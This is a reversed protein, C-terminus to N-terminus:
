PIPAPCQANPNPCQVSPTPCQALRRAEPNPCQSFYVQGSLNKQQGEEITGPTLECHFNVGQSPYFDLLYNRRKDRAKM